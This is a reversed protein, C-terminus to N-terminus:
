KKDKKIKKMEPKKLAEEAYKTGIIFPRGMTLKLIVNGIKTKDEHLMHFIHNYATMMNEFLDEDQMKETGISCKVVMENKTQLKVTNKLKDVIPKLSPTVPSIVAGSKPNPMKGIPGLVKGFSKAVDTMLNAQAIFFDIKKALHKVQKPNAGYNSFDERHIVLDCTEKAKTQLENGILAGIKSDKGRPKPLVIFTNINEESKKLDLGKLNIILDVSQTFNRKKSHEKVLRLAQLVQNKDM